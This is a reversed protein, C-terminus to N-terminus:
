PNNGQIENYVALTELGYYYTLSDETEAHPLLGLLLPIKGYRAFCAQAFDISKRAAELYSPDRFLRYAYLMALADQM